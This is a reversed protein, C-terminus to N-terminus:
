RSNEDSANDALNLSKKALYKVEDQLTRMDNKAAVKISNYIDIDDDYFGVHITTAYKTM